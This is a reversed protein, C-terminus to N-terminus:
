IDGCPWQLIEKVGLSHGHCKGSEGRRRPLDTNSCQLVHIKLTHMGPVNLPTSVFMFSWKNRERCKETLAELDFMEGIPVGWMALLFEHLFWAKPPWAEFAPADGGVASFYSDHLWTKMEETQALGVYNPNPVAAAELRAPDEHQYQHYTSIYGSRVLLIDGKQFEVGQEKAVELLEDLPISYTTFADYGEGKRVKWSYYDLLVGRGVIGHQSLAQIGCRTGSEVEDMALNNYFFRKTLHGFHRFGDWQSGSQTNIELLDDFVPHGDPHPAFRHKGPPREWAPKAPLNTAWNLSVVTGDKVEKEKVELVKEATLLNIRGIEDDKGWIWATEPPVDSNKNFDKIQELTPLGDPFLKLAHEM